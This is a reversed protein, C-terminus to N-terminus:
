SAEEVTDSLRHATSTDVGLAALLDLVVTLPPAGALRAAALHTPLRDAAILATWQTASLALYRLGPLDALLALDATPCRSLDLSRLGPLTRLPALDVPSPVDNLHIAQVGPALREDLASAVLQRSDDGSQQPAHPDPQGLIQGLWATVSSAVYRPGGNDPLLLGSPEAGRVRRRVPRRERPERARAARM